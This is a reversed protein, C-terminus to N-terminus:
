IRTITSYACFTHLPGSSLFDELDRQSNDEQLTVIVGDMLKEVDKILSDHSVLLDRVLEYICDDIKLKM